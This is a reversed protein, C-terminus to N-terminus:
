MNHDHLCYLHASDIFYGGVIIHCRVRIRVDTTFTEWGGSTASRQRRAERKLFYEVNEEQANEEWINKAITRHPRCQFCELRRSLQQYGQTGALMRWETNAGEVEMTGM